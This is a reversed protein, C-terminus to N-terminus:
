KNISKVQFGYSSLTEVVDWVLVMLESAHAETTPYYAVPWRFGTNGFFVFQLIHTALANLGGLIMIWAFMESAKYDYVM